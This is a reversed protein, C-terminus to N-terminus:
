DGIHKRILEEYLPLEGYQGHAIEYATKLDAAALDFTVLLQELEAANTVDNDDLRKDIAKIEAAICQIAVMLTQPKLQM